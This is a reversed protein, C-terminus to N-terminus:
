LPVALGTKEDSPCREHGEVSPSRQANQCRAVSATERETRRRVDTSVDLFTRRWPHTPAPRRTTLFAAQPKRHVSSFSGVPRAGDPAPSVLCAVSPAAACPTCPPAAQPFVGEQVPSPERRDTEVLPHQEHLRQASRQTRRAFIQQMEHQRIQTWTQKWRNSCSANRLALMPNIHQEGWRMGSGKLRHEVVLTNASEVSGSGIPSGHDRFTASRIMPLREKLYQLRATIAKAVNEKGEAQGLLLLREIEQVVRTPEGTKLEKAQADLWGLLRVRGKGTALVETQGQPETSRPQLPPCTTRRPSGKKAARSTERSAREEEYKAELFTCIWGQEEIAKGVDAVKELAHAFDLIRVADARHLDVFKQIWEAGDTVAVVGGANEGGREHIEVLAHTEFEKSESMRSFYSLDTTHVVEEGDEEVPEGVNGVVFTKVEKWAGGVLQVFAGDLGILQVAPGTPSEPCEAQISAARAEQRQVLAEGADETTKRTPTAGVATGTFFELHTSAQRFPMWTALRAM